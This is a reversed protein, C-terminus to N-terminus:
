SLVKGRVSAKMLATAVTHSGVTAQRRGHLVFSNPLRRTGSFTNSWFKSGVYHSTTYYAPVLRNLSIGM